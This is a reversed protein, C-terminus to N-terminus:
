PQYKISAIFKKNDINSIIKDNIISLNNEITYNNNILFNYLLHLENITIENIYKSEMYNIEGNTSISSDNLITKNITFICSNDILRERKSSPNRINKIKIYNNLNGEPKRDINLLEYYKNSLNDYYISSYLNYIKVNSNM